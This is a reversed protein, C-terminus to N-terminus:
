ILQEIFALAVAQPPYFSARYLCSYFCRAAPHVCFTNLAQLCHM